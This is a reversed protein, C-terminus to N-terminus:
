HLKIDGEFCYGLYLYNQLLYVSKDGNALFFDSGMECADLSSSAASLVLVEDNYLVSNVANSCNRVFVYIVILSYM